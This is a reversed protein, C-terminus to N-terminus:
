LDLVWKRFCEGREEFDIFEDFSTGGPSLLVVDGDRVLSSVEEVAEKLRKCIVRPLNENGPLSVLVAEIKAAAEGFTVLYRIRDIAVQLLEEWPLNKDRGGAMLILPEDFSRIAALTREPATAISDNYWAAGGWMRVLELRHPVGTFEGIASRIAEPAFGATCAITSAALTNSLNHEGRLKIESLPMLQYSSQSDQYHIWDNAVYSGPLTEPKEKGFSALDGVVRTKMQWAEVDDRNLIAIDHDSQGSLIHAKAETYAEMTKHRDLHNPSINMIVAMWPSKSMLELQFSSLEMVVLDDSEIEDMLAILPRGINGGVWAKRYASHQLNANIAKQAIEGVLSTTTTKGASGTIGIVNKCHADELFIQSDNSLPIGRQIAESVLPISLPVGGSVCLVDTNNLLSRPHNGLIWEVPLDSLGKITDAMEGAQRKDNLIVQAGKKSLYRALATGQRAAGVIVVQLGKWKEQNQELM